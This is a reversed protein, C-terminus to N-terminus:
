FALWSTLKKSLRILYFAIGKPMKVIILVALWTKKTFHKKDLLHEKNAQIFEARMVSFFKKAYKKGLRQLNWYYSLFKASEMIKGYQNFLKKEKLFREIEFYETQPCFVKGHSNISSATNDTRYHLFAETTLYVRQSVALTKFNFGTDQYSAGPTNLLKIDNKDIIKKRYIASWIAPPKTFIEQNNKPNIIKNSSFHIIKKQHGGSLEYYNGKVIDVNHQKAIKYLKEMAEYDLFDDPENIAIYEGKAFNIGMNVTSGYGSNDKDVVIFRKDKKAFQKVIKLSDDTSGDNICIFEIERLTQNKLHELCEKLYKSVNYIPVIVSVKVM